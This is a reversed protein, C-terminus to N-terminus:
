KSFTPKGALQCDEGCEGGIQRTGLSSQRGCLLMLDDLMEGFRGGCQVGREGGGSRRWKAPM